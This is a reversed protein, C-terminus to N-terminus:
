TVAQFTAIKHSACNAVDLIMSLWAELMVRFLRLMCVLPVVRTQNPRTTKMALVSSVEIAVVTLLINKRRVSSTHFTLLVKCQGFLETRTDFLVFSFLHGECLWISMMGDRIVCLLLLILFIVRWMWLKSLSTSKSSPYKLLVRRCTSDISIRGNSYSLLM